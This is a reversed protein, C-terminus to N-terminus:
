THLDNKKLAMDMNIRYIVGSIDLEIDSSKLEMKNKKIIIHILGMMAILLLVFVEILWIGYDTYM